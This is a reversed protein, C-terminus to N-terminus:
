SWSKKKYSGKGNEGRRGGDGGRGGKDERRKLPIPPADSTSQKKSLNVRGMKDIEIVKVPVEDGVKLVAEVSEIFEDSIESVHLLGEKGPMIECFAGFNMIRKVTGTYVKGVEPLATIGQIMDIAKQASEGSTSAISVTGDDNVEVTAGSDATIKRIMKGGPGIVERIKDPDIKITTIRPAFESLDPRADALVATMKSLIHIRGAKAQDLAKKLTGLDISEKLKLDLQIATVGESTGAVKFDMDGLHDEVGAIDSLVAVRDGVKVLGMAIGSVPAKIPVGADM